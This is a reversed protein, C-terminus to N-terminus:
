PQGCITNRVTTKLTAKAPWALRAALLPWTVGAGNGPTPTSTSPPKEQPSASQPDVDVHAAVRPPPPPRYLRAGGDGLVAAYTLKCVSGAKYDVHDLSPRDTLGAAAHIQLCNGYPDWHIHPRGDPYQAFDRKFQELGLLVRSAPWDELIQVQRLVISVLRGLRTRFILTLTGRKKAVSRSGNATITGVRAGEPITEVDTFYPLPGALYAHSGSDLLVDFPAAYPANPFPNESVASTPGVEFVADPTAACSLDFRTGKLASEVAAKATAPDFRVYKDRFAGAADRSAGDSSGPVGDSSESAAAKKAPRRRGGTGRTAADHARHHHAGGCTSCSNAREKFLSRCPPMHAKLEEWSAFSKSCFFCMPSKRAGGYGDVHQGAPKDARGGTKDAGGTSQRHGSKPRSDARKKSSAAAPAAGGFGDTAADAAPQGRNLHGLKARYAIRQVIDELSLEREKGYISMSAAPDVKCFLALLTDRWDSDKFDDAGAEMRLGCIEVWKAALNPLHDILNDKLARLQAKAALQARPLLPGLSSCLSELGSRLDYGAKYARLAIPNARLIFKVAADFDVLLKEFNYKEAAVRQQIQEASLTEVSRRTVDQAAADGSFEPFGLLEFKDGIRLDDLRGLGSMTMVVGLEQLWLPLRAAGETAAWKIGNLLAADIAAATPALALVALLM